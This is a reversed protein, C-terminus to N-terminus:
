SGQMEPLLWWSITCLEEFFFVEVTSNYFGLLDHLTRMVYCRPANVYDSGGYFHLLYQTNHTHTQASAKTIRCTFHRISWITIQLSDPDIM